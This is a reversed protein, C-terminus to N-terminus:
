WLVACYVTQEASGKFVGLSWSITKRKATTFVWWSYTDSFSRILTNLPHGHQTIAVQGLMQSFFSALSVLIRGSRWPEEQSLQPQKGQCPLLTGPVCFNKTSGKDRGLNALCCIVTSRCFAPSRALPQVGTWIRDNRASLSILRNIHTQPPSLLVCPNQKRALSVHDLQQNVSSPLVYSSTDTRDTAWTHWMCSLLFELLM